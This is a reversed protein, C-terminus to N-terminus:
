ANQRLARAGKLFLAGLGETLSTGLREAHAKVAAEVMDDVENWNLRVALVRGPFNANAARLVLQRGGAEVAITVDDDAHLQLRKNDQHTAVRM